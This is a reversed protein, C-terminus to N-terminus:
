HVVVFTSASDFTFVAIAGEHSANGAILACSAFVKM